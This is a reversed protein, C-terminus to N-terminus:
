CGLSYCLYVFSMNQFVGIARHCLLQVTVQSMHDRHKSSLFPEVISAVTMVMSVPKSGIQKALLGVNFSSPLIIGSSSLTTKGSSCIFYGFSYLYTFQLNSIM